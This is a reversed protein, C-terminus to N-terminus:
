SPDDADTDADADDTDTDMDDQDTDAVEWRSSAERESVTLIEADSLTTKEDESM